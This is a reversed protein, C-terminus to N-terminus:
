PIVGELHTEDFADRIEIARGSLDQVTNAQLPLTEGKRTDRSFTGNRTDPSLVLNGINTMNMSAPPDEVMITYSGGGSLHSAFINLVSRGQTGIFSSKVYGKTLPNPPAFAPPALPSKLKFRTADAKTTLPPIQAFLVANVIYNTVGSPSINTRGPSAIFLYLGVMDEVDAFGLQPPAAGDASYKLVRTDNTGQRDMAAVLFVPTNTDNAAGFFVGFSGGGLNQATVSFIQKTGHKKLLATATPGFGPTDISRQFDIISSTDAGRAGAVLRSSLVMMLVFSRLSGHLDRKM